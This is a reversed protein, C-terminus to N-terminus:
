NNIQPRVRRRWFDTFCITKWPAGNLTIATRQQRSQANPWSEGDRGLPSPGGLAQFGFCTGASRTSSLTPGIM